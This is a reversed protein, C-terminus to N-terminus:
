AAGAHSGKEHYKPLSFYFPQGLVTRARLGSSDPGSNESGYRTIALVSRNKLIGARNGSRLRVHDRCNSLAM